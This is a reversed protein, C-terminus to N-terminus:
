SLLL